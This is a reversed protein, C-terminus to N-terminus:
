RRPGADEKVCLLKRIRDLRFHKEINEELCLAKVCRNGGAGMALCFPRIWRARPQQGSSEYELQIDRGEIMARELLDFGPPMSILAQWDLGFSAEWMGAFGGRSLAVCLLAGTARADAMARHARENRVGYEDCLAQLSLRGTKTPLFRRAIPLTDLLKNSPIAMGYRTLEAAFFPFDFGLGNHAVLADEGVFALFRQLAMAPPLGEREAEEQSIGHATFAGPEIPVRPKVLCHFEDTKTLGVYRVAGIEIIAGLRPDLGTTEIDVVVLRRNLDASLEESYRALRCLANGLRMIEISTPPPTLLKPSCILIAKKRGRSLAVNLRNISLLFDLDRSVSNPDSAVLCYIVVDGEQGQLRDVTGLQVADGLLSRLLNEQARYPTVVLVESRPVGALELREVLRKVVEAEEPSTQENGEHEVPLLFIGAPGLPDTSDTTITLRRDKAAAVAHLKGEYCLDSLYRTIDENMRHTESLFVGLADPVVHRGQLLYELVSIGVGEPHSAQSVHPLQQHDGLLVVNRAARAAGIVTALSLQGAEDFVLVDLAGDKMAAFQYVTGAVVNAHEVAEHLRKTDVSEFMEGDFKAKESRAFKVGRFTLGTQKAVEEVKQCLHNITKHAQSLIGVKKGRRVLEVILRSGTFTKGTGPPGQVVLFGNTLACGREIADSGSGQGHRSLIAEVVPYSPVSLAVKQISEILAKNKQVVMRILAVEAPPAKLREVSIEHRLQDVEKVMASKAVTARTTYDIVHLIDGRQLKCEEGDHRYRSVGDATEILKAHSIAEGSLRREEHDAEVLALYSRFQANFERLPYLALQELFPKWDTM